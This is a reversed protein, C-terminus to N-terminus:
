GTPNRGPQSAAARPRRRMSAAWREELHLANFRDVMYQTFARVKAPQHRRSQYALSITLPPLEWDTLLPVLRGAEFDRHLMYLPQTIIGLGALAAENIVQGENSDLVSSIRVTRAEQGRRFRLTHPDSLLNYVLMRHARLDEPVRPAGHQAVYAPAAATVLCTRALTRMTIGSDSEHERTRIAVDIGAEIFDPYRNAAVVQVRIRPYRELFGPLAPAIHLMAFSVSSTVRLLGSPDLTAAGIEADVEDMEALLEVCRRHYERGADTLWLRRTTREVLRVGLREELAALHRSASASSIGLAQAAKSLSSQEAVQVFLTMQQIRDM